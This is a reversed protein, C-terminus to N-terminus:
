RTYVVPEFGNLLDGEVIVHMKRDGCFCRRDGVIYLDCGEQCLDMEIATGDTVYQETYAEKAHLNALTRIEEISKKTTDLNHQQAYQLSRQVLKDNRLQRARGQEYQAKITDYLEVVHTPSKRNVLEIGNVQQTLVHAVPISNRFYRPYKSTIANYVNQDFWAYTDTKAANKYVTVGSQELVDIVQRLERDIEHNIKETLIMNQEFTQQWEEALAVVEERSLQLLADFDRVIHENRFPLYQM